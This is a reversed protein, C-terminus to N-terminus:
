KGIKRRDLDVDIAGLMAHTKAMELESKLLSHSHTENASTPELANVMTLLLEISAKIRDYTQMKHLMEDQYQDKNIKRIIQQNM